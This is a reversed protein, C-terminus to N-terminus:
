AMWISSWSWQLQDVNNLTSLFLFDLIKFVKQENM